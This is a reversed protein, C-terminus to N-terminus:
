YINTVVLFVLDLWVLIKYYELLTTPTASINGGHSTRKPAASSVSDSELGAARRRSKNREVNERRRM